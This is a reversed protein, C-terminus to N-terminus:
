MCIWYKRKYHVIGGGELKEREVTPLRDRINPFQTEIKKKLNLITKSYKIYSVTNVDNGSGGWGKGYGSEKIGGNGKLNM